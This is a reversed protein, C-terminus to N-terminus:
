EHDTTRYYPFVGIERAAMLFRTEIDKVARAIKLDPVPVGFVAGTTIAAEVARCRLAITDAHQALIRVHKRLDAGTVDV